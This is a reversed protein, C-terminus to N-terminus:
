LFVGYKNIYIAFEEINKIIKKPSEKTYGGYKNYFHERLKYFIGMFQVQSSKHNWNYCIEIYDDQNDSNSITSIYNKCNLNDVPKRFKELEYGLLKM